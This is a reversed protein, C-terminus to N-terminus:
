STSRLRLSNILLDVDTGPLSDPVSVYFVAPPIGAGRDIVIVAATESNWALHQSAAYPYTVLFRAEWGASGSVSVPTSALHTLQHYLARYYLANFASV